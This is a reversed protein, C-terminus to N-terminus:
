AAGVLENSAHPPQVLLQNPQEQQAIAGNLVAIEGVERISQIGGMILRAPRMEATDEGGLEMRDVSHRGIRVPAYEAVPYEQAHKGLATTGIDPAIRMRFGAKDPHAKDGEYWSSAPPLGVEDPSLRSLMEDTVLNDHTLWNDLAPNNRSVTAKVKLHGQDDVSSEVTAPNLRQPSEGRNLLRPDPPQMQLSDVDFPEPPRNYGPSVSSSPVDGAYLPLMTPANENTSSVFPAGQEKGPIVPIVYQKPQPPYYAMTKTLKHKRCKLM